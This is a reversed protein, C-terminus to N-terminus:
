MDQDRILMLSGVMGTTQVISCFLKLWLSQNGKEKFYDYIATSCSKTPQTESKSIDSFSYFLNTYCAGGCDGFFEEVQQLQTVYEANIGINDVYYVFEPCETVNKIGTM